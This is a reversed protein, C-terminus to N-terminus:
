KWFPSTNFTSLALRELCLIALKPPMFTIKDSMFDVCLIFKKINRMLCNRRWESFIAWISISFLWFWGSATCLVSDRCLLSVYFLDNILLSGPVLISWVFFCKTSGFLLRIPVYPAPVLRETRIWAASNPAPLEEAVTTLLVDMFVASVLPLVTVVLGAKLIMRDFIIPSLYVM